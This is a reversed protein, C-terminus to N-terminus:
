GRGLADILEKIQAASQGIRELWEARVELSNSEESSMARTSFVIASLASRMDQCFQAVYDGSGLEDMDNMAQGASARSAAPEFFGWTERARARVETERIERASSIDV